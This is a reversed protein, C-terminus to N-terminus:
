EGSFLHMFLQLVSYLFGSTSLLKCDRKSLVGFYFGKRNKFISLFAWLFILAILSLGFTTVDHGLGNVELINYDVPIKSTGDQWIISDLSISSNQSSIRAFTQWHEEGNTMVKLDIMQEKQPNSLVMGEYSFNQITEYIQSPSSLLENYCAIEDEILATKECKAALSGCVWEIIDFVKPVGLDM